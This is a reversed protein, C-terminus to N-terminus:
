DVPVVGLWYIETLVQLLVGVSHLVGVGVLAPSVGLLLLDGMIIQDVFVELPSSFKESVQM